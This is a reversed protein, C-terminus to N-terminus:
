STKTLAPRLVAIPSIRLSVGAHTAVEGAADRVLTTLRPFGDRTIAGVLRGGPALRKIVAPPLSALSGNVLIRTFREDAEAELGDGIECVIRHGYDLATLRAAASEALPAYREVTRVRAGLQALLGSVYGSGTGIELVEDGARLDLAVLMAAVVSPATMTQGYDLPLAIDARALDTFRRPAFFDRPVREMAGLVALDRVGRSRLSMVFAADREARAPEGARSGDGRLV